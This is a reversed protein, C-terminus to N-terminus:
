KANTRKSTSVRTSKTEAIEDDVNTNVSEANNIMGKMEEIEKELALIKKDKEDMEVIEQLDFTRVNGSVDKIWLKNMEKNIFLGTKMVFTNKVAEISDAYRGELENNNQTPTIQFNQTIPQQIQQPQNQNQQIQKIQNEIFEKKNQLDQLYFQNNPYMQYNM